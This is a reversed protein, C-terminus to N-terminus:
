VKKGGQFNNLEHSALPGKNSQRVEHNSTFRGMLNYLPDSSLYIRRNTTPTTYDSKSVAPNFSVGEKLLGLKIFEDLLAGGLSHGVGAYWWERPNFLKQLRKINALDRKYRQSVTLNGLAIGIDAAIDNTDKPDTGRIAIIITKTNENKYTGMYQDNQILKWDESKVQETPKYSANEMQYLTKLDPMHSTNTVPTVNGVTKGKNYIDGATRTAIKNFADSAVEKTKNWANKLFSGFGDGSIKNTGLLKILEKAEKHHPRNPKTKLVIHCGDKLNNKIENVFEKLHSPVNDAIVIVGKSDVELESIPVKYYKELKKIDKLSLNYKEM